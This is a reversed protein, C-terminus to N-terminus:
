RKHKADKEHSGGPAQNYAAVPEHLFRAAGHEVIEHLRDALYRRGEVTQLAEDVALQPSWAESRRRRHEVLSEAARVEDALRPSFEDILAGLARAFKTAAPLNLPRHGSLYQWVLGPTGMSSTKAFEAQTMGGSREDFLRKLAAAEAEKVRQPVNAM